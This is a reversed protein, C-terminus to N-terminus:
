DPRVGPDHGGSVVDLVIGSGPRATGQGPPAASDTGLVAYTCDAHPEHDTGHLTAGPAAAATPCAPAPPQPPPLQLPRFPRGRGGALITTTSRAPAITTGASTGAAAPSGSPGPDPGAVLTQVAQFASVDAGLDVPPLDPAQVFETAPETVNEAAEARVPRRDAATAAPPPPSDAAASGPDASLAPEAAPEPTPTTTPEPTPETPPTTPETTTVPPEDVVPPVVEVPVDVPPAQDAPDPVPMPPEAVPTPVPADGGTPLLCDPSECSVPVPPVAEDARAIDSTATALVWAGAALLVTLLLRRWIRLSRKRLVIAPTGPRIRRGPASITSSGISVGSGRSNGLRPGHAACM